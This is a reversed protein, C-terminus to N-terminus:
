EARRARDRIAGGRLREGVLRGCGRNPQPPRRAEDHRDARFGAAFGRGIFEARSRFADFAQSRPRSLELKGRQDQRVARCHRSKAGRRRRNAPRRSAIDLGPRDDVQDCEGDERFNLGIETATLDESGFADIFTALLANRQAGSTSPEAVAAAAERWPRLPARGTITAATLRRVDLEGHAGGLHFGDIDIANFLERKPEDEQDRTESMIKAALALDADRASVKGYAGNADGAQPDLISFSIGAVNAEAAKGASIGNLLIDRYIFTQTATGTKTEVTMEPIAISAATLAALREALPATNKPDFLQLLGASSLSAGVLVIRKIRYISLGTELTLDDASAEGLGALAAGALPFLPPPAFRVVGVHLSSGRRRWDLGDIRAEGRWPEASIAAFTLGGVRAAVAAAAQRFLYRDASEIAVAALACLGVAALLTRSKM